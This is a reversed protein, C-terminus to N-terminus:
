PHPFVTDLITSFQEPPVAQSYLYGQASPCRLARLCDAQREDEVGEATVSLQMHDAMALLAGVLRYDHNSTTIGTIFSRDIKLVDIPYRHLYTLSAYGTGFDDIAIHVGREHIGTLNDRAITTEGLLATETIELCLQGPDLRSTSLAEDLANLLGGEALQRASVNVRVTIPRGHAGTAWSAARVCAEKLVWAGIENILGTEEAVDIFRAATLIEGSPHHWRLLAEAAIVRGSVLDVEPQFWVALQNRELARRLDGEIALRAAVALRLEDNFVAVRDRGDDKAAYMATDAERLLDAPASGARSVAVGISATSFMEGAPTSFPRRFAEVLRWAARVAEGPNALDRMVVVFEDGGIRGVLDGGRVTGALRQAAVRLLTDGVDHGLSDNVIKFRDLDILLVATTSASRGAAHLGRGIDDLLAPRNALGTLSDHTAMERLSQEAIVRKTIDRNTSIVHAVSGDPGFLPSLNAEYWCHGETNDVEYQMSEPEGTAFVASICGTWFAVASAPYGMEAMSKGIWAEGPVGSLEVVRRNVYEFRLDPGYTATGDPSGDVTVATLAESDRLQAQAIKRETVDRSTTVVHAVVGDADFEPDVRTEFWRRGVPLDLDFEHLVPEGTAFVVRSYEDWPVTLDPPYGAEAFTKGLWDPLSIGTFEVLRRNVYEVRLDPGFRMIADSTCDLVVRLLAESEALSRQAAVEGSVDHATVVVFEGYPHSAVDFAGVVGNDDFAPVRMASPRGTRLPEVYCAFIGLGVVSPFLELLGRGVVEVSPRGYLREAAANLFRYRLDVVAGQEDRQADFIFFSEQLADLSGRLWAEDSM